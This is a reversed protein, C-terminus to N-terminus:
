GLVWEIREAGRGVVALIRCGCFEELVARNTRTAADDTGDADNLIVGAVALGRARISEVTLLTHNLVGLKNRAVVIVPWGFELAFDAIMYGARLPVLWGGAGECLVCAHREALGRMALVAAGYDAAKEGLMECARPAAPTQLWIPNIAELTEVNEAAAALIEVDERPGCCVPKAGVTDIGAARAAKVLLATVFTKGCDTDTGTVFYNMNWTGRYPRTACGDVANWGFEDSGEWGAMCCM